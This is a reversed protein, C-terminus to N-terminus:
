SSKWCFSIVKSRPWAQGIPFFRWMREYSQSYLRDMLCVALGNELTSSHLYNHLIVLYITTKSSCVDALQVCKSCISQQPWIPKHSYCAKAMAVPIPRRPYCQDNRCRIERWRQKTQGVHIPWAARPAIVQWRRRSHINLSHSLSFQKIYTFSVCYYLCTDSNGLPTMQPKPSGWSNIIKMKRQLEYRQFLTLGVAALVIHQRSKSGRM